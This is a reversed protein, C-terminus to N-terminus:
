LQSAFVEHHFVEFSVPFVKFPFNAAQLCGFTIEEGMGKCQGALIMEKYLLEFSARATGPDHFRNALTSWVHM